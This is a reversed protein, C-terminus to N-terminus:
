LVSGPPFEAERSGLEYPGPVFGGAQFVLGKDVTATRHTLQRVELQARPADTPLWVALFAFVLGPRVFRSSNM